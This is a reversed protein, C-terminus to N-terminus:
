SARRPHPGCSGSGWSATARAASRIRAADRFVMATTRSCGAPLMRGVIVIPQRTTSKTSVETDTLIMCRGTAAPWPPTEAILPELAPKPGLATDRIAPECEAPGLYPFGPPAPPDPPAAPLGGRFASADEDPGPVPSVLGPDPERALELESGPLPEPASGLAPEPRPDPAESLTLAGVFLVADALAEADALAPCDGDGDGDEPPEGPDPPTDTHTLKPGNPPQM